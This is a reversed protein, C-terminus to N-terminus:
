VCFELSQDLTDLLELIYIVYKRTYQRQGFVKFGNEPSYSNQDKCLCYLCKAEQGEVGGLWILLILM